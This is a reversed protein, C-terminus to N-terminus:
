NLQVTNVEQFALNLSGTFILYLEEAQAKIELHLDEIFEQQNNCGVRSKINNKTM